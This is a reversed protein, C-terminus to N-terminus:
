ATPSSDQQNLPDHGTRSEAALAPRLLRLLPQRLRLPTMCSVRKRALLAYTAGGQSWYRNGLAELWSLRRRVMATEVPPLFYASEVGVIDFDLLTLWDSMRQPSLARRLWPTSAWPLRFLRWLGWLSWPNFGLIVLHGEPLLVRSAERLVAHPNAAVDLGHHIVVVDISDAALPLSDPQALLPSLGEVPQLAPAALIRHRIRSSQLLNVPAAQGLQLAHYGFLDPLIHGLLRNEAAILERGLETGFWASLAGALEERSAPQWLHPLEM